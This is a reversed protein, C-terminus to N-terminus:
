LLSGQEEDPKRRTAKAPTEANSAAGKGLAGRPDAHAEVHGDAFEIDLGAGSKVEAARRLMAGDQGRVLAFGRALVNHYGLTALLKSQTDLRRRARDLDTHIARARARDLRRLTDRGSSAARSLLHPRLRSGLREM